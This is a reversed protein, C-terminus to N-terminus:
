TYSATYVYDYSYSFIICVSTRSARTGLVLFNYAVWVWWQHLRRQLQIFLFSLTFNERNEETKGYLVCYLSHVINKTFITYIALFFSSYFFFEFRVCVWLLLLNLFHLNKRNMAKGINEICKWKRPGELIDMTENMRRNAQGTGEM